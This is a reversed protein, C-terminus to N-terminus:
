RVEAAMGNRVGGLMADGRRVPRLMDSWVLCRRAQGEAGALGKRVKGYTVAGQRDLGWSVGGLCQGALGAEGDTGQEM